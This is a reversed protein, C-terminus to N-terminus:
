FTLIPVSQLVNKWFNFYIIRGFFFFFPNFSTEFIYKSLFLFGNRNLHIFHVTSIARRVGERIKILRAFSQRSVFLNMSSIGWGSFWRIKGEHLEIDAITSVVESANDDANMVSKRLFALPVAMISPPKAVSSSRCPASRLSERQLALHRRM